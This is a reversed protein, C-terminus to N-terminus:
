RLDESFTEFKAIIKYPVTCYFCRPVSIMNFMSMKTYNSSIIWEAINLKFDDLAKIKKASTKHNLEIIYVYIEQTMYLFQM